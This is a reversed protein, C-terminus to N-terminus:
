KRLKEILDKRKAWCNVVYDEQSDNCKLIDKQSLVDKIILYTVKFGPEEDSIYWYEWYWICTNKSESYFVGYDIDSRTWPESMLPKESLSACYQKMEFIEQETKWCGVLCLCFLCLIWVYIKKM